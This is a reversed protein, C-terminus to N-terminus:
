TEINRCFIETSVMRKRINDPAGSLDLIVDGQLNTYRNRDTTRFRFINSEAFGGILTIQVSKIQDISTTVNGLGDDDLVNGNRDLYVLNLVQINEAVPIENRRLVNDVIDWTINEIDRDGDEFAGDYWEDAEDVLHDYDNDDGDDEGGTVDMTFGLSTPGALFFGAGAEGSLDSGALRLDAQMLELGIRLNEQLDATLQLTNYSQNQSLYATYVATMVIGSIAIVVMLEIITLGKNNYYKKLM